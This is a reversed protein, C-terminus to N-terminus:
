LTHLDEIDEILSRIELSAIVCYLVLVSLFISCIGM